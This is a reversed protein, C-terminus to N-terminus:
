FPVQAMLVLNREHTHTLYDFHLELAFHTFPRYQLGASVIGDTTDERHGPAGGNLGTRGAGLGATLDLKSVLPFQGTAQVGYFDNFTPPENDKMIDFAGISVARVGFGNDWRYGLAANMSATERRMDGIHFIRGGSIRGWGLEPTFTGEAFAASSASLAAAVIAVRTLRSTRQM